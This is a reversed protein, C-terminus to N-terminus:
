DIRLMILLTSLRTAARMPQAPNSREVAPAFSTVKLRLLCQVASATSLPRVKLTYGKTAPDDAIESHFLKAQAPTLPELEVKAGPQVVLILAKETLAEGKAWNLKNASITAVAPITVKLTLVVPKLPDDSTTVLVQKEQIGRRGGLTFIALVLGTEGPQYIFKEPEATTCSCSTEVKLLTVPHDGTNKFIFPIEAKTDGYAGAHEIMRHEWTLEARAPLVGLVIAWLLLKLRIIM